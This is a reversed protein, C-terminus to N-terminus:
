SASLGSCASQKCHVVSHSHGQFHHQGGVIGM